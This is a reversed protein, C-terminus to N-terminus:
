VCNNRHDFTANWAISPCSELSFVYVGPRKWPWLRGPPFNPWATTTDRWTRVSRRRGDEEDCRGEEAGRSM